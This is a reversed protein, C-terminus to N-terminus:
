LLSKLAYETEDLFLVNSIFRRIIIKWYRCVKRNQVFLSQINKKSIIREIVTFNRSAQSSLSHQKLLDKAIKVFFCIRGGSGWRQNPSVIETKTIRDNWIFIEFLKGIPFSISM